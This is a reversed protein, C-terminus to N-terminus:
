IVKYLNAVTGAPYLGLVDGYLELSTLNTTTDTWWGVLDFLYYLSNVHFISYKGHIWRTMGTQAFITFEMAHNASGQAVTAGSGAYWYSWNTKLASASDSVAYLAQSGLGTTAGNPRIAPAGSSTNTQNPKRVFLKYVKDANGNLNSFTLTQTSTAVVKSEVLVLGSNANATGGSKVVIVSWTGTLTGYSKLNITAVNTSTATVEDPVIQLNSDDYVATVVYQSSLNHTVTLIGSSLSANTFSTTYSGSDASITLAGGAGGDTITIGAGATLLRESTLTANTGLVLYSADTPAGGGGTSSITVAGSSGTTISVGSGAVLYSTGDTLQTLSGSLGQNFRTTGTVTIGSTGARFALPSTGSQSGITIATTGTGTGINITQTNAANNGSSGINITNSATSRGLTIMGTGTEGGISYASTASGTLVMGNTGASIQTYSNAASSGLWVNQQAAGTGVQVARANASNGIYIGGTTSDLLVGGSGAYLFLQSTSSQNGIVVSGASQGAISVNGGSQTLGATSTIGPARIAGTFTTGSVTAVISNDITLNVDGSLGGGTLGTGASVSTIGGSGGASGSIALYQNSGSVGIVNITINDGALVKSSLFNPSSDGTTVRVKTFDKELADDIDESKVTGDQIQNGKIQTIM